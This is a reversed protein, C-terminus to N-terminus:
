LTWQLQCASLLQACAQHSLWSQIATQSPADQLCLYRQFEVPHQHALDEDLIKHSSHYVRAQTAPSHRLIKNVEKVNDNSFPKQNCGNADGHNSAPDHFVHTCLQPLSDRQFVFEEKLHIKHPETDKTVPVHRESLKWFTFLMICSYVHICFGRSFMIQLITSFFESNRELLIALVRFLENLICSNSCFSM